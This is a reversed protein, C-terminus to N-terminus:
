TIQRACGGACGGLFRIYDVYTWIVSVDHQTLLFQHQFPYSQLLCSPNDCVTNTTHCSGMFLLEKQICRPQCWTAGYWSEPWSSTAADFCGLGLYQQKSKLTSCSVSSYTFWREYHTWFIAGYKWMWQVADSVFFPISRNWNRALFPRRLM